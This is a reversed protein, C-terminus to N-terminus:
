LLGAKQFAKLAEGPIRWVGDPMAGQCYISGDEVWWSAGGRVTQIRDGVWRLGHTLEPKDVEITIRYRRGVKGPFVFGPYPQPRDMITVMVMGACDNFKEATGSFVVTSSATESV